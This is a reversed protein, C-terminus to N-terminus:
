FKDILKDMLKEYINMTKEAMEMRERHRRERAEEKEEDEQTFLEKWEDVKQDLRSTKIKKREPEGNEDTSDPSDVLKSSSAIALPKVSPKSGFIDDFELFYDFVIPSQGSSKNGM